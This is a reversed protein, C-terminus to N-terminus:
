WGLGRLERVRTELGWAPVLALANHQRLFVQLRPLPPKVVGGGFIIVCMGKGPRGPGPLGLHPVYLKPQGRRHGLGPSPAGPLTRFKDYGKSAEHQYARM